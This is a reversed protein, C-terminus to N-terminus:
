KLEVVEVEARLKNKMENKMRKKKKKKQEKRLNKYYNQRQESFEKERQKRKKNSDMIAKLCFRDVHSPSQLINFVFSSQTISLVSIEQHIWRRIYPRPGM